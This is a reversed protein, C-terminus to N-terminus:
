RRFVRDEVQPGVCTIHVQRPKVVPVTFSDVLVLHRPLRNPVALGIIFWPGLVEVGKESTKGGTSLTSLTLDQGYRNLRTLSLLAFM